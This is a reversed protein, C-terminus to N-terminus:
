RRLERRLAYLVFCFGNRNRSFLLKPKLSLGGTNVIVAAWLPGSPPPFAASHVDANEGHRRAMQCHNDEGKQTVRVDPIELQVLFIGIFHLKISVLCM